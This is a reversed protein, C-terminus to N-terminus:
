LPAGQLLSLGGGVDEFQQATPHILNSTGALGPWGKLPSSLVGWWLLYFQKQHSLFVVTSLPRKHGQPSRSGAKTKQSLLCLITGRLCDTLGSKILDAISSAKWRKKRRRNVRSPKTTDDTYVNM